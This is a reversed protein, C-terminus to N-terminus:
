TKASIKGALYGNQESHHQPSPFRAEVGLFIAGNEIPHVLFLTLFTTSRAAIANM